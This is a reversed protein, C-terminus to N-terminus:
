PACDSEIDFLAGTTQYIKPPSTSANEYRGCIMYQGYKEFDTEEVIFQFYQNALYTVPVGSEDFARDVTPASIRTSLITVKVGDPDTLFLALSSNDSLDYGVNVGFLYGSVGEIMTTTPKTPQRDFKNITIGFTLLTDLDIGTLGGTQTQGFSGFNLYQSGQVQGSAQQQPFM